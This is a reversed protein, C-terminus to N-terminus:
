QVDKAAIDAITALLGRAEARDAAGLRGAAELGAAAWALVQGPRNALCLFGLM